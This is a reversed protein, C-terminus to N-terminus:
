RKENQGPARGSRLRYEGSEIACVSVRGDCETRLLRVGEPLADIQGPMWVEGTMNPPLAVTLEFESGPPNVAAVHVTGRVTPLDLSAQRLSGLQPRILVCGFGPELPRVGMLCRPIINAPAAGWAHNWDLNNKYKWDWAELTVTSGVQIMNWWSRDHEATMLALAHEAEGAHYLAELLYQAGYVSCAMGRSKVFAAVGAVRESPVIGFALPLMNSHLSAHGSGEGDIYVGRRADFLKANMTDRVRTAQAKFRAADESKGLASAMRSMLEVARYHFANVVTNVPRMEHGDREGQGGKTFSGPPWDVLDRPGQKFIFRPHDLHLAKVLDAPAKRSQTSILGDERSLAILTKACLDEYFLTLSDADGTYLYDVWAMLVSHLLWETPWTPYQVLYEHTYRALTFERDVCYHSLQNLYADGEYPIRERDGDVYVGCFSTAKISYKCLEWVRNLVTDNSEFRAAQDDFPYHVAVQRVTDADLESPCGEVECYRFPFVEGVDRPMRIAARGTNRRDPPIVLRYTHRGAKLPVRLRRYRITGAPRRHVGGKSNLCEGLHVTLQPGAEGATVTLEVTGFAARGFDVFFRGDGRGAVRVPRVVAQQLPYQPTSFREGKGIGEGLRPGTRFRQADSWESPLGNRSWTRVRWWYSQQAELPLGAYTVGVSHASTVKGSDWMDAAGEGLGAESSAVQVHYATQRDRPELAPVIWFFGPTPDRIETLEPRAMLECLLGHPRASAVTGSVLAVAMAVTMM